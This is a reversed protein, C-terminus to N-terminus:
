TSKLGYVGSFTILDNLVAPVALTYNYTHISKYVLYLVDLVDTYWDTYWSIVVPRGNLLRYQRWYGGLIVAPQSFECEVAHVSWSFSAGPHTAVESNDANKKGHVLFWWTLSAFSTDFHTNKEHRDVYGDIIKM